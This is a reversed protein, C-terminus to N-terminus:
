NCKSCTLSEPTRVTLGLYQCVKNCDHTSFFAEVGALGLNGEGYGEGTVTHIQPDTYYENVGQIDVVIETHKSHEWTFHSFAQPTMHFNPDHNKLAFDSNSNFKIYEGPLYMELAVLEDGKNKRRGYCATLFTVMKPPAHQNFADAYSSAVVQAQVDRRLVGENAAGADMYNKCVKHRMPGMASCDIMRYAARMAGKAFSMKAIKAQIEHTQWKRMIPEYTYVSITEEKMQELQPDEVIKASAGRRAGAMVTGAAGGTATSTLAHVEEVIRKRHIRVTVGFDHELSEEDLALLTAGDVGIERFKEIYRFSFAFKGEMWKCVQDVNWLRPDDSSGPKNNKVARGASGDLVDARANKEAAEKTKGARELMKALDRVTRFDRPDNKEAQRMILLAKDLDGCAEVAAAQKRQLEVDAPGALKVAVAWQDAAARHEGSASLVRAYCCRFECDQPQLRVAEKFQENAEPLAKTNGGMVEVELARGLHFRAETNNPMVKVALRYRDIAESVNGLAHHTRGCHYNAKGNNPELALAKGFSVLADDMEELEKYACGLYLWAEAYRDDTEVAKQLHVLSDRTQERILLAAGLYLQAEKHSPDLAVAAQQWLL